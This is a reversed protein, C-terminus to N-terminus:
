DGDSQPADATGRVEGDSRHLVLLVKEVVRAACYPAIVVFCLHAYQVAQQPAGTPEFSLGTLVGFLGIIGAIVYAWMVIVKAQWGGERNAMREILGVVRGAPSRAVGGSKSEEQM